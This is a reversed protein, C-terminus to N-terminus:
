PSTFAKVNEIPWVRLWVRGIIYKDSLPGFKRSDLSAQRNDGLVFYQNKNLTLKVLGSTEFFYPLYLTEDVKEAEKGNAKTIFIEGDKIELTENPLGVIRKIYYQSPNQPYKFVIVEGRQPQRLFYSLEDVVLYDGEKFNPEMSAGSVFFPQVVFYRIPVVIALSIVVIKFIEWLFLFIKKM